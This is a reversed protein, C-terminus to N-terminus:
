EADEENFMIHITIHPNYIGSLVNVCRVVIGKLMGYVSVVCAM